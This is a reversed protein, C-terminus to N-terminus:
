RSASPNTARSRPIDRYLSDQKTKQGAVYAILSSHDNNFNIQHDASGMWVQTSREESQQTLEAPMEVMEGGYRYENLHSLSMELKQNNNPTYFLNTGFSTNELKPLEHIIIM